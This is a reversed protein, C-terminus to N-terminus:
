VYLQKWMRHERYWNSTGCDRFEYLRNRTESKKWQDKASEFASGYFTCGKGLKWLSEDM